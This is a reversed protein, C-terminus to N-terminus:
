QENNSPIINAHKWQWSVQGETVFYKSLDDRIRKSVTNYNLGTERSTHSVSHIHATAVHGVPEKTNEDDSTAEQVRISKCRLLNHLVCIALIVDEVTSPSMQITTLLIRFRNAMIGFANEVVRRARSLRYNFIRESASLGRSSFPKMLNQRLPYAEDGVLMFPTVVDTTGPIFRPQPINLPNDGDLLAKSFGSANYVAADNASGQTGINVYKFRYHADVVGLLNISYFKKYNYFTGGCRSPRQIRIM